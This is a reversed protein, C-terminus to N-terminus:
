EPNAALQSFVDPTSVSKVLMGILLPLAGITNSAILVAAIMVIYRWLSNKGKFTSELHNM